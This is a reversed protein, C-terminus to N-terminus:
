RSSKQHLHNAFANKIKTFANAFMRGPVQSRSFLWTLSCTVSGIRVVSSFEKLIHGKWMRLNSTCRHYIQSGGSRKANHVEASVTRGLNHLCSLM